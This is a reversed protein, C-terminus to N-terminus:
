RRREASRVKEVGLFRACKELEAERVKGLGAANGNSLCLLHVRYNNARLYRITPIFFMAEDDPHATVLLVERVEPPGPLPRRMLLLFFITVFNAIILGYKLLFLDLEDLEDLFGM